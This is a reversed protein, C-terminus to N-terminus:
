IRAADNLQLRCVERINDIDLQQQVSQKPREDLEFRVLLDLIPEDHSLQLRLHLFAGDLVCGDTVTVLYSTTISQNACHSLM